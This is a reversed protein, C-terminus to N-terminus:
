PDKLRRKVRASGNAIPQAHRIHPLDIEQDEVVDELHTLTVDEVKRVSGHGLEEGFLQVDVYIVGAVLLMARGFRLSQAAEEFSDVRGRRYPREIRQPLISLRRPLARAPVFRHGVGVTSQKLQDIPNLATRRGRRLGGRRSKISCPEQLQLTFEAGEGVQQGLL